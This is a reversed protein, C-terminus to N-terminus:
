KLLFPMDRLLSELLDENLFFASIPSINKYVHACVYRNKRILLLPEELYPQFQKNSEYYNYMDFLDEDQIVDRLMVVNDEFFEIVNEEDDKIHVFAEKIDRFRMEFKIGQLLLKQVNELDNNQFYYQLLLILYHEKVDTDVNSLKEEILDLDGIIDTSLNVEHIIACQAIIEHLRDKM